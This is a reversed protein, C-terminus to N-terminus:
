GGRTSGLVTDIEAALAPIDERLMMLWDRILTGRLYEYELWSQQVAVLQASEPSWVGNATPNVRWIGSGSLGLAKPMPKPGETTMMERTYELYVDHEAGPGKPLIVRTMFPLARVGFRPRGDAQTQRTLEAPAGFVYVAADLPVPALNMRDLPVFKREWKSTLFPVARPDIELWGIDVADGDGGGRHGRGVLCPTRNDWKGVPSGLGIVGLRSLAVGDLIHGATAVFSRGGIEIPTRSGIGVPDDEDDHVLIAVSRPILHDMMARSHQEIVVRHPAQESPNM